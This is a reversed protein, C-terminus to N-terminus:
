TDPRVESGGRILLRRRNRASHRLELLRQAVLAPTVWAVPLDMTLHYLLNGAGEAEAVPFGRFSRSGRSIGDPSRGAPAAPPVNKQRSCGPSTRRGNGPSM